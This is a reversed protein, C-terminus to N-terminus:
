QETDNTQPGYISEIEQIMTEIANFFKSLDEDKSYAGLNREDFLDLIKKTEIIYESVTSQLMDMDILKDTILNIKYILYIIIGIFLLCFYEM